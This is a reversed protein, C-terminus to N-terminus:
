EYESLINKIEEEWNPSQESWIANFEELNEDAFVILPVKTTGFRSMIPIARKKEKFLDINFKEIILKFSINDVIDLIFRSNNDYVVKLIKM